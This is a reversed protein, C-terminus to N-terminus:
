KRGKRKFDQPMKYKKTYYDIRESQKKMQEDLEVDMRDRVSIIINAWIPFGDSAAYINTDGILPTVVDKRFIVELADRMEMDVKTTLEVTERDTLEGSEIQAKYAEAKTQLNEFCDFLRAAFNVDTPNMKIDVKNGDDGVLTFTKMGTSIQIIEKNTINTNEAM